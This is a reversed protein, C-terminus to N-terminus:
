TGDQDSYIVQLNWSLPLKKARIKNIIQTDKNQENNAAKTQHKKLRQKHQILVM